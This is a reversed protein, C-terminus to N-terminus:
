RFQWSYLQANNLTFKVRVPKGALGAPSANGWVVRQSLHDGQVPQCVAATFGPLPQGDASQLEVRVEGGDATVANLYLDNGTFTLPRTIATGGDADATLAIFGDRRFTFRRLRSDPGTYYAETAYVSLKGDEGPLELLGHAMYNSRNGRRDEPADQSIVPDLFRRFNLGDRSSLFVPEVRHNEEAIYRAPFGILLHPARFYPRITNTYLHQVPADPYNLFVPESWTLFDKSTTLMIDRVRNKFGRHYERYMGIEPDWFALNQSDFAGKTIVPNETILSWRIGDASQFAYLGHQDGRRGSGLAKYRAEAPCDPNTDIFPAFNHSGVGNWIINNQKSGDFEVLGLQPKKWTRGDSSEAYCVVEPHGSKKTSEDFHSGRYYMRYLDGDQFITYYACTNGEWPQDTVLVVDQPQPSQVQLRASGSLTEVVAQDTVLELRSGIAIPADEAATATGLVLLSLLSTLWGGWKANRHCVM